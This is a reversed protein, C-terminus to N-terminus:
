CTQQHASVQGNGDCVTIKGNRVNFSTVKADDVFVCKAFRPLEEHLSTVAKTSGSYWFVHNNCIRMAIMGARFLYLLAQSIVNRTLPTKQQLLFFHIASTDPTVKLFNCALVNYVTLEPPEMSLRDNQAMTDKQLDCYKSFANHHFNHLPKNLYFLHQTEDTDRQIPIHKWFSHDHDPSHLMLPHHM